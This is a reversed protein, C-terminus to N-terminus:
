QDLARSNTEIQKKTINKLGQPFLASKEFQKEQM